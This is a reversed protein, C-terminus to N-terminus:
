LSWSQGQKNLGHNNGTLDPSRPSLPSSSPAVANRSSVGAPREIWMTKIKLTNEDIIADALIITGDSYSKSITVSHKRRNGEWTDRGIEVSDFTELVDPILIFIEKTISIQNGLKEKGEGHKNKAHWGREITVNQIIKNADANLSKSIKKLEKDIADRLRKNPHGLSESKNNEPLRAEAKNAILLGKDWIEGLKKKMDESVNIKAEEMSLSKKDKTISNETEM